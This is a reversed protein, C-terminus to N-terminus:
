HLHATLLCLLQSPKNRQCVHRASGPATMRGDKLVSHQCLSAPLFGVTVYRMRQLLCGLTSALQGKTPPPSRNLPLVLHNQSFFAITCDQKNDLRYNKISWTIPPASM